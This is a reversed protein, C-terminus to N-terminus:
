WIHVYIIDGPSPPRSAFEGSIEEGVLLLSPRGPPPRGPPPSIDGDGDGDDDDDDDYEGDGACGIGTAEEDDSDDSIDQRFVV